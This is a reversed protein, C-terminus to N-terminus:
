ARRWWERLAWRWGEVWDRSRCRRRGRLRRRRGRSGFRAAVPSRLSDHQWM